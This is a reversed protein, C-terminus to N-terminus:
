RTTTTSGGFNYLLGARMTKTDLNFGGKNEKYDDVGNIEPKYTTSHYHLQGYQFTLALKPKAQWWVGPVGWVGIESIKTENTKVKNDVFDYYEQKESGFGVDFGAEAFCGVNQKFPRHMRMFPSFLFISNCETLDIEGSQANFKQTTSEGKIGLGTGIALKDKIYYSFSPIFAYSDGKSDDKDSNNFYYNACGGAFIDGSVPITQALSEDFIALACILMTLKKM